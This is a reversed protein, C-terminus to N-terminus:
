RSRGPDPEPGRRALRGTAAGLVPGTVALLLVVFLIQGTTTGWGNEIALSAGVLP